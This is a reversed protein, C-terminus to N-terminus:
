LNPLNVVFYNRNIIVGVKTLFLECESPSDSYSWSIKRFHNKFLFWDRVVMKLLITKLHSNWRAFYMANSFNPECKKWKKYQKYCAQSFKYIINSTVEKEPLLPHGVLVSKYKGDASRWSIRQPLTIETKYHNLRALDM